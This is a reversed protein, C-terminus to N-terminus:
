KLVNTAKRWGKETGAYKEPQTSLCIDFDKFGFAELMKFGHKLLKTVEDNLQEPTCWIHADDKMDIYQELNLM